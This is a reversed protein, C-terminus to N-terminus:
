PPTPWWPVSPDKVVGTVDVAAAAAAATLAWVALVVAVIRGRM